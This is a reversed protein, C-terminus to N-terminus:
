NMLVGCYFNGFSEGYIHTHIDTIEVKAVEEIVINRLTEKTVIM